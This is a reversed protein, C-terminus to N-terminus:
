GKGINEDNRNLGDVMYRNGEYLNKPQSRQGTEPGKYDALFHTVDRRDFFQSFAYLCFLKRLHSNHRYNDILM